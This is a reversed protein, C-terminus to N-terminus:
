LLAGAKALMDAMENGHIGIHGPLHHIFVNYGCQALRQRWRWLTQFLTRNAVPKGRSTTWQAQTWAEMYVNVGDVAYRSDSCLWIEKVGESLWDIHKRRRHIAELAAVMAYVEARSSSQHGTLPQALHPIGQNAFYVGVGAQERDPLYAGDVYAVLRTEDPQPVLELLQDEALSMSPTPQYYILDEVAMNDRPVHVTATPTMPLLLMSSQQLIDQIFGRISQEQCEYYISSWRRQAAERAYRDLAGMVGQKITGLGEEDRLLIRYPDLADYQSDVRVLSQNSLRRTFESAQDSRVIFEALRPGISSVGGITIDAGCFGRPLGHFPIQTLNLNRVYVFSWM